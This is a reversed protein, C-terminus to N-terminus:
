LPQMEYSTHQATEPSFAISSLDSHGEEKQQKSLTRWNITNLTGLCWIQPQKDPEGDTYIYVHIDM